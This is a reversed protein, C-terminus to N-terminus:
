KLTIEGMLSALRPRETPHMDSQHDPPQPNLGQQTWCCEKMFISQSTTEVTM